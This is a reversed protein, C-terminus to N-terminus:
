KGVTLTQGAYDLCVNVTRMIEYSELGLKVGVLIMVGSWILVVVGFVLGPALRAWQSMSGMAQGGRAHGVRHGANHCGGSDLGGVCGSIGNSGGGRRKREGTTRVNGRGERYAKGPSNYMTRAYGVDWEREEVM